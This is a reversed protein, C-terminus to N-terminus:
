MKNAKICHQLPLNLAALGSPLLEDVRQKKLRMATSSLWHSDFVGAKSSSVVHQNNFTDVNDTSKITLDM